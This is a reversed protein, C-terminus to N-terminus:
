NSDPEEAKICEETRNLLRMYKASITISQTDSFQIIYSFNNNFSNLRKGILKGIRGSCVRSGSTVQVIDGVEFDLSRTSYHTNPKLMANERNKMRMVVTIMLNM